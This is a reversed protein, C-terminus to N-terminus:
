ADLLSNARELMRNFEDSNMTGDGDKDVMSMLKEAQAARSKPGGEFGVAQVSSGCLSYLGGFFM